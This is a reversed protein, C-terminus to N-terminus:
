RATRLRRRALVLMGLSLALGVIAIATSTEVWLQEPFIQVLREESPDFNFSGAPFFLEHFLEFAADFAVVFVAGVISGVVLLVGSGVAVGRWFWERRRGVIAAGVLVVIGAGVAVLFRGYVARVDAMHSRERPNLVPRGEVTMEFTGPGLYIESIMADTVRSVEGMPYGTLRDSGARRQAIDFWLPNFFVLVVLGSISLMTAVAVGLGALARATSRVSSGSARTVTSAALDSM